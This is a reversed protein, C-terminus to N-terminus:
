AKAALLKERVSAAQSDPMNALMTEIRKGLGASANPGKPVQKFALRIVDPEYEDVITRALKVGKPGVTEKLREIQRDLDGGGRNGKGKRKAM